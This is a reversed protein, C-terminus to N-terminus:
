AAQELREDWLVWPAGTPVWRGSEGSVVWEHMGVAAGAILSRAVLRFRTVETTPLCRATAASYSALARALEAGNYAYEPEVPFDEGAPVWAFLGLEVQALVETRM